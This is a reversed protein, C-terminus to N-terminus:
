KLKWVVFEKQKKKSMSCEVDGFMYVVMLFNVDSIGEDSETTNTKRYRM